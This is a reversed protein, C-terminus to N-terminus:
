RGIRTMMMMMLTMTTTMTPMWAVLYVSFVHVLLTLRDDTGASPPSYSSLLALHEFAFRTLIRELPDLIPSAPIM